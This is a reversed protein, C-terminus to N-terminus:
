SNSPSSALGIKTAYSIDHSKNEKCKTFTQENQALYKNKELDNNLRENLIDYQENSNLTTFLTTYDAFIIFQFSNSSHTIDNM